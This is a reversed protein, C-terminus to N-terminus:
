RSVWTRRAKQWHRPIPITIVGGRRQFRRIAKQIWPRMLWGADADILAEALPRDLVIRPIGHEMWCVVAVRGNYIPAWGLDYAPLAHCAEDWIEWWVSSTPIRRERKIATMTM